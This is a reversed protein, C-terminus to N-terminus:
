IKNKLNPFAEILIKKLEIYSKTLTFRPFDTFIELYVFIYDNFSYRDGLKENILRADYILYVGIMFALIFAYYIQREKLTLFTLIFWTIMIQAFLVLLFLKLLSIKDKKVLAYIGIILVTVMLLLLNVIVPPFYYLTAIVSSVIVPYLSFFLLLIYNIPIIKMLNRYFGFIIASIVFIISSYLLINEFLDYYDYIINSRITPIKLIFITSFSLIIVIFLMLFIKIIFSSKFLEANLNLISEGDESDEDNHILEHESSKIEVPEKYLEDNKKKSLNSSEDEKQDAIELTSAEPLKM